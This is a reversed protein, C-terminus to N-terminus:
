PRISLRCLPCTRSRMLWKTLCREHFAHHCQLLSALAGEKFQTLCIGCKDVGLRVGLLALKLKVRGEKTVRRRQVEILGAPVDIDTDTHALDRDTDEPGTENTSAPGIIESIALLADYNLGSTSVGETDDLRSILIDLDTYETFADQPGENEHDEDALSPSSPSASRTSPSSAVDIAPVYSSSPRQNRSTLNQASLPRAFASSPSSAEFVTLSHRTNLPPRSSTPFVHSRQRAAIPLPPSLTSPRSYQQGQDSGTQSDSRIISAGRDSSPPPSVQEHGHPDNQNHPSHLSTRYQSISPSLHRSAQGDGL